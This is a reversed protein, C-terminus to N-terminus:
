RFSGELDSECSFRCTKQKRWSDSDHLIPSSVNSNQLQSEFCYTRELEGGESAVSVITSRYIDVRRRSSSQQVELLSEVVKVEVAEWASVSELLEEVEKM